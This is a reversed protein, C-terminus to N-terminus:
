RTARATASPARSGATLVRRLTHALGLEDHALRAWTARLTVIGLALLAADDRRDKEFARATEHTSRGDWELVVRQEPWWCDRELKTGDPLALVAGRRHPPFGHRALFRRGARELASKPRGRSPDRRQLAARLRGAGRHGRHRGLVDEIAALDLEGAVEAEHLLHDIIPLPACALLLRPVTLVPMRHRETIDHPDLTAERVRVGKFSAGGGPKLVDVEGAMTALGHLAAGARGALVAEAGAAMLGGRIRGRDTLRHQTSVVGRHVRFLLRDDLARTIAAPSLGLGDVLWATSLVGDDQRARVEIEAWQARLAIKKREAFLVRTEGAM